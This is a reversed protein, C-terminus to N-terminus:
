FPIDAVKIEDGESSKQIPAQGMEASQPENEPNQAMNDAQPVSQGEKIVPIEEPSSQTANAQFPLALLVM